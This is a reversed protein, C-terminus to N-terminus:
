RYLKPGQLCTSSSQPSFTVSKLYSVRLRWGLMESSCATGPAKSPCFVVIKPSFRQSYKFSQIIIKPVQIIIKPTCKKKALIMTCLKLAVDAIERTTHKYICFSSTSTYWASQSADRNPQELKRTKCLHAHAPLRSVLM